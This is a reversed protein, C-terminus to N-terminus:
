KELEKQKIAERVILDAIQQHGKIIAVDLPKNGSSNKMDLRAGRRILVSATRTHGQEAALHLLTGEPIKQNVNVGHQILADLVSINGHYASYYVPSKGFRDLRNPDANYALLLHVMKLDGKEAALHLPSKPANVPGHVSAQHNLLVRAVRAHGERVAGMLPFPGKAPNVQAGKKILSEAIQPEELVTALYLPTVTKNDFVDATAGKSLLLEVSEESRALTAHHLATRGYKDKINIEAKHALLLDMMATYGKRSALHLPTQGENDQLNVQAGKNLLVEAVGLYGIEAARHLPTQGTEDTQNPNAGENLHRQAENVNKYRVATDLSSTKIMSCASATLGFIFLLLFGSRIKQLKLM